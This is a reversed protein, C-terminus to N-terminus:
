RDRAGDGVIKEWEERSPGAPGPLAGSRAALWHTLRQRVEETGFAQDPTALMHRARAWARMVVPDQLACPFRAAKLRQEIGTPATATGSLRTENDRDATVQLDFWPKLVRRAWRAYGHAFGEHDTATDTTVAIRRAAWLALTIGQTLTPNTHVLADGARVLGTVVPESGDATPTWQNDLGAMVHVAGVPRPDRDLWAASSPFTRALGDFVHPDNLAPLTPDTTACVLAVGVLGNDSPFAISLAFPAASTYPTRHPPRTGPRTRYWRCAYALGVRHREREPAPAGLEGLRRGVPSRRGGTDIVLDADIQGGDLRVGTVQPVRHPFQRALLGRVRTGQLLRVNKEERLSARLATELVVRRTRVLVLHEDGDRHPPHEDFWDFEHQEWAGLRRMRAYVDPLEAALVARAPGLLAHPQVAQPVRPRRWDFFDADVQGSVARRDQECVTVRHGARALLLATATGAMGGGIVAVSAM